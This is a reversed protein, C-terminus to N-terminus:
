RRGGQRALTEMARTIPIRAFRKQPDAWSYSNLRREQEARFRRQMAGSEFEVRAGSARAVPPTHPWHSHLVYLIGAIFILLGLLALGSGLVPKRRLTFPQAKM